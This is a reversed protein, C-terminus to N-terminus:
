RIVAMPFDAFLLSYVKPNQRNETMRPVELSVFGSMNRVSVNNEAGTVLGGALFALILYVWFRNNKVKVLIENLTQELSHFFGQKSLV